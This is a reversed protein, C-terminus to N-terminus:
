GSRVGETVALCKAQKIFLSMQTRGLIPKSDSLEKLNSPSVPIAKMAVM